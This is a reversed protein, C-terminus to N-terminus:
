LMPTYDQAKGAKTQFEHQTFERTAVPHHVPANGAAAQQTQKLVTRLPPRQPQNQNSTNARGGM